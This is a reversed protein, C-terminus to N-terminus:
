MHRWLHEILEADDPGVMAVVDAALICAGAGQFGAEGACAREKGCCGTQCIQDAALRCTYSTGLVTAADKPKLVTLRHRRRVQLCASM